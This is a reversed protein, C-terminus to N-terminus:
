EFPFLLKQNLSSYMNDKTILTSGSDIEKEVREGKILKVASEVGLYGMNFSKQIVIAEYIGEELYKIQERANDFGIIKVTGGLGLEKVAKGAGVSSYQNLGALVTIKPNKQLMEKTQQEAKDYDSDCYVIEAIRDQDDSLGMRIGAERDIASSTGKVFSIIGIQDENQLLRKMVAGMRIGAKYNDTSITTDAIDDKVECDILVLKIGNEVIKKASENTKEYDAAALVIADPKQKIAEEILQNQKIYDEEVDPGSISLEVGFESAALNAGDMISNWFGNTEDMIKTICIIKYAKQPKMQNSYFLFLIGIVFVLIILKKSYTKM